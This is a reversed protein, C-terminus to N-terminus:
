AVIKPSSGNPMPRLVAELLLRRDVPKAVYGNMGEALYHDRDGAMANATLAVIPIDCLPRPLARILRMATLGDMIPMHIDMLILDFAEDKVAQVAQAGDDALVVDHGALTLYAEVIMRNVPHDDAVLIRLHASASLRGDQDPEDSSPANSLPAEVTFWFTSGCAEQSRVGIDGNMLEVLEKSIALGLGTGGFRRSMSADAQVFRQFIQRQADESLGIGTDRVEFRLEGGLRDPDHSMHVVVEGGETFKLANGVLNILVQRIRTPDGLLWIPMGPAVDWSLRLGKDVAWGGFLLHLERIMQGTHFPIVEIVVQGMQLKSFDLIDNLIVLLQRASGLAISARESQEATLGNLMLLDLMGIVGSMPTRLEHSMTALFQGKAVTAAEAALSRESLEDMLILQRADSTKRETIDYRVSVFREPRGDDGLLPVVTTDVWYLNGSKDRNCVEAHWPRGRAISRWMDVFFKRPHHGSNLIRHNRGMLEERGYGSIECFRDNVFIIDGKRDTIAVIGYKDVAEQYASLSALANNAELLAVRLTEREARERTVDKLAGILRPPAGEVSLCQGVARIWITRGLATTASHEFEFAQGGEVARAITAQLLTAGEASFFALTEALTSEFDPEVDFIRRAQPSWGIRSAELDLEWAGVEVLDAVASMIAEQAKALALAELKPGEIIETVDTEIAQFGELGGQADIMPQIELNLWYLRGSKSRNLIPVKIPLKAALAARIALITGPDTEPCQLLSGPTRGLVEASSYGTLTEFARNVWTARGDPDTLVIPSASLDALRVTVAPPSPLATAM